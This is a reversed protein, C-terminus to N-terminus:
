PKRGVACFQDIPPGLPTPGPRWLPASVLGPELLELGAFFRALQAPSRLTYPPTGTDNYDEIAQGVAAPRIVNTGDAFVLYSGSPVSDMLGRVVSEAEGDDTVHGLIGLLLVAIPRTFDLTRAAEMLIKDPERLDADIYDTTGHPAGLLMARAHLLVV